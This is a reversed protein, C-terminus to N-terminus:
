NNRGSFLFSLREFFSMYCPNGLKWQTQDITERQEFEDWQMSRAKKMAEQRNAAEVTVCGRKELLHIQHVTFEKM